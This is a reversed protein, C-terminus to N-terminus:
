KTDFVGSVEVVLNLMTSVGWLMILGWGIKRSMVWKNLPVAILLGVLTILLTAASIMLTSSVEIQYPKYNIKKNPHKAHKHNAGKITMYMGSLGIGLLINLMPGGFCASLAMVPYGLRAVTIDAVLDGLSNGVAFITLGLIADSIGLIVGIAKLAGVVENAITSIWAIAVVFGLFCLIFRYKPPKSPSTTLVLIGFAVLSGLLSYVVLRFLLRSNGEASNAWVIIVVFLPATFIQVAVLWRNWDETPVATPSNSPNGERSVSKHQPHLHSQHHHNEASVAVAATNHGSYGRSRSHHSETARRYRIWEPENEPSQSNTTLLSISNSHSRSMTRVSPTGVGPVVQEEEDDESESEVVPLTIALLFISPASIVGVFKDWISKERWTCLTPFLISGMTYPSPLYRYPWWWIPKEQYDLDHSGYVSDPGMEPEPLIISPAMSSMASMPAPSDTFAPFQIIPSLTRTYSSERSSSGPIQLRPREVSRSRMNPTEHSSDGLTEQDKSYDLRLHKAGPFGEDPPALTDRRSRENSPAPSPDRVSPPPSVSFTPSAPPRGSSTTSSRAPEPEPVQLHTPFTPTAAVVGINPISAVSFAAPDTSKTRAADNMSVARTRVPLSKLGSSANSVNVSTIGADSSNDSYRESRVGSGGSASSGVQALFGATPDDSYRRLHIPRGRSGRTKQLSSLVSRFELAGVLSPRIPTITNRRSGSPRTVRMSSAMEAALQMGGEGDEDSDDQPGLLPSRGGDELAAFDEVDRYRRGGTGTPAEEDHDAEETVEIEENAMALYQGRAAAERERNQRRRTLYWHWVVVVVVYFVYFAVMVCCEWLHLAGDALFLMSFSAAVIFFGVDRVFTKKGVKFERVLAMSGAVVATIFGAAGILEGVALSGSHSSMAAFTSFVDPSGNGFALFTVGAMSESMGLISAITSLNICFFDSAAIGITTFLLALWLSLIAFAIPQANQLDCYYLSLYSFLGAEEDPCNAKIFACKDQAHHVLRCEEDRRVLRHVDLEALARRQAVGYQAGHRYRASQDAVLSLVAFLSVVLVTIYFARFRFRFRFRRPPGPTRNPM